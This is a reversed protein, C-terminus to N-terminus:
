PKNRRLRLLAYQDFVPLRDGSSVAATGERSGFPEEFTASYGEPLFVKAAVVPMKPNYNVLHVAYGDSLVKVEAFVYEPLNGFRVKAAFGVKALDAMLARGHDAPAEVLTCWGIGGKVEDVTERWAVNPHDRLVKALPNEFRQAGKENWLGTDRGTIVVKGGKRVFEVITEIQADSIWRQDSLLLVDTGAPIEFAASGRAIAYGFPVHNRILIEEAATIGKHASVCFLLTDSPYFIRVSALSPSALEGRHSAAFRNFKALIPKRAAFVKENMFGAVRTPNMVTRDTPVGGLVLDEVLPRLYASEDIAHAGSDGDCLAVIPKQVAQALKLERVRSVIVGNTTYDPFNGSQMMYLDLQDGLSVMETANHRSKMSRFPCANASLIAKPNVSKIKARFRRMVDNMRDVRWRAWAQHLTDKIDRPPPPDDEGPEYHYRRPQRVGPLNAFGFLKEKEPLAAIHERFLKECRACYCPYAFTNDFMIGDFKGEALAIELIKEIYAVWAENNICPLTRYYMGNYMYPNGRDDIAAWNEIEPIEQAMTEYYLTAFQVYALALVGHKHCNSVFTCVNPFDKKEEEWGMGKYFRSHLGNLGIEEMRTPANADWWNLWDKLWLASGEIGGTSRKGIRRYMPYPEHAGLTWRTTIPDIEAAFLVGIMMMSLISLLSKM